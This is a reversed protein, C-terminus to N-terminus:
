NIVKGTIDVRRAFPNLFKNALAAFEYRTVPRNLDFETTFKYQTKWGKQVSITFVEPDNLTIESIFSLLNGVTFKEGPKTKNFWLFARTYLETLVPKIEDTNVTSDPQFIISVKKGENKQFCKLLGTATVQQVARWYPDSFPVDSVPFIYGKFDLIEGQVIRPHLNKTTTKFFALFAATAGAGQGLTMQVAPDALNINAEREISLAKETVILNEVDKAVIAGLPIGFAPTQADTVAITTRYLKSSRDYPKAVDENIVRLLGNVAKYERVYPIYPLHDPTPYEEVSFNKYGLATQLYYILGLTHLRAKRFTAVRNQTSLDAFTVPYENAKWNILYKDNVIRSEKLLQKVEDAKLSSYLSADYGEPKKITRDAARGNDKVIAAFTIPQLQRNDNLSDTSFKAGALTAMDALETGDVLVKAKITVKEKDVTIEAEWGTGDKKLTLIPTNLKVTLNKVTDTMKKLIAAGTYPEFRLVANQTTDYGPTKKYFNTINQRFEALIGTNFDRNANLICIGGSTMSGGLWPGQEILLTKLKSRSSQIAAAVGSAGGGIVLVDTKITEAFSITSKLIVLLLLLKKIM